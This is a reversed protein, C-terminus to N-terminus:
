TDLEPFERDAAEIGGDPTLAESFWRIMALCGSNFGHKFDGTPGKLDEYEERYTEAVRRLKELCRDRIEIPTPERGTFAPQDQNSWYEAWVEADADLPPKRAAWVLDFYKDENSAELVRTIVTKQNSM